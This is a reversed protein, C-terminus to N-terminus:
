RRVWLLSGGAISVLLLWTAPEPVAASALAAGSGLTTNGFNMKWFDYDLQDVVGDPTGGPGSGDAALESGMQGLMDRWVTYDAADVIGSGNYDGALGASEGLAQINDLSFSGAVQAGLFSEDPNHLVRLHTVGALATDIDIGGLATFDDALVDIALSHWQNDAPVTIGSTLYTDGNGLSHVGDPGAIGLRLTLDFDSNNRVDFAVQAVGAATWDGSWHQFQNVVLLKGGAGSFGTSTVSMAHDGAGAPGADAQNSTDAGFWALLTGDQFDDVQNLEIAWGPAAATALVFTPLVALLLLKGVSNVAYRLAISPMMYVM